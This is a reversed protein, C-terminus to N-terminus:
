SIGVLKAFGSWDGTKRAQERATRLAADDVRGSAPPPQGSTAAPKPATPPTVGSPAPALYPQLARPITAGEAKLGAVWDGLAPRNEPPLRGHLMRAVDQGEDDGVGHRHLALRDAFDAQASALASKLDAAEKTAADLGGAKTRLAEVESKLAKREAAVAAFREYPVPAQADPPPPTEEDSM